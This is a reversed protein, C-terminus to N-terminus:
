ATRASITPGNTHACRADRQRDWSEMLLVMTTARGLWGASCSRLRLDMAMAARIVTDATATHTATAMAATIGTRTAGAGVGVGSRSVLRTLLCSGTASSGTASSADINSDTKAGITSFPLAAKLVIKEGITSVTSAVLDIM